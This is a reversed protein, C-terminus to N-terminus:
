EKKSRPFLEKIFVKLFLGVTKAYVLSVAVFGAILARLIWKRLSFGASPATAAHTTM